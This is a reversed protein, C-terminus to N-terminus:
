CGYSKNAEGDDEDEAEDVDDDTEVEDPVYVDKTEAEDEDVDGNSGHEEIVTTVLLTFIAIKYVWDYM